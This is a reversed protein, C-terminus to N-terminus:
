LMEGGVSGFWVKAKAYGFCAILRAIRLLLLLRHKRSYKVGSLMMEGRKWGGRWRGQGGGTGEVVRGKM